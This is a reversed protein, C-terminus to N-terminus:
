IKQAWDQNNEQVPSSNTIILKPIIVDNSTDMQGFGIKALVIGCLILMLSSIIIVVAGWWPLLNLVSFAISAIFLSVGILILSTAGYFYLNSNGPKLFELNFSPFVQNPYKPNKLYSRQKTIEVQTPIEYFDTQSARSETEAPKNQNNSTEDVFLLCM